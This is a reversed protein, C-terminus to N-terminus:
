RKAVLDFACRLDDKVKLMGGGVSVPKIGFATQRIDFEGSARLMDGTLSVRAPIRVRATVGHLTLSGNLIVDYQGGGGDAPSVNAADSVFTIAPYHESELVEDQMTSEISTRDTQSLDDTLALSSARVKLQLSAADPIEPDFTVEGSYDRVAFTPSHGLASLMGTAFARVTFRSLMIHIVFRHGDATASDTM